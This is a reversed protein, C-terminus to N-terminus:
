KESSPDETLRNAVVLGSTGGGIIVYDYADLLSEASRHVRANESLVPFGHARLIIGAILGFLSSHNLRM